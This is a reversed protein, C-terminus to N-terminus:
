TPEAIRCTTRRRFCATRGTTPGSVFPVRSPRGTNEQDPTLQLTSKVIAIRADTLAGMEAASLRESPGGSPAQAYAVPSAAVFFAIGSAAMIKLM